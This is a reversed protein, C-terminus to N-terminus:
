KGFDLSLSNAIKRVDKLARTDSGIAQAVAQMSQFDFDLKGSRIKHINGINLHEVTTSLLETSCNPHTVVKQLVGSNTDTAMGALSEATSYQNGAVALRVNEDRSWALVALEGPSTANDALSKIDTQGMSKALDTYQQSVSEMMQRTQANMHEYLPMFQSYVLTQGSAGNHILAMAQNQELYNKMVQASLDALRAQVEKKEQDSQPNLGQVQQIEKSLKEMNATATVFREPFDPPDVSNTKNVESWAKALGEDMHLAKTTSDLGVTLKFKAWDDTDTHRVLAEKVALGEKDTRLTYDHSLKLIAGYGTANPNKLIELDVKANKGALETLSGDSTATRATHLDQVHREQDALLKTLEELIAKSEQRAQKASAGSGGTGAGEGRLKVAQELAQSTQEFVAKCTQLGELTKIDPLREKMEKLTAMSKDYRVMYDGLHMELARAKAQAIQEDLTGEFELPNPGVALSLTNQATAAVSPDSDMSLKELVYSETSQSGAVAERVRADPHDAMKTLFPTLVTDGVNGAFATDNLPLKLFAKVSLEPDSSHSLAWLAEPPTNKNDAVALQIEPDQEQALQKLTDPLTNAHNAVMYKLNLDSEGAFSQLMEATANPHRAIAMKTDLSGDQALIKALVETPTRKDNLLKDKLKPDDFRTLENFQDVLDKGKLELSKGFLKEKLAQFVNAKQEPELRKGLKDAVKDNVAGIQAELVKIDSALKAELVGKKVPDTLAGAQSLQNRAAALEKELGGRTQLLEKLNKNVFTYKKTVKEVQSQDIYEVGTLKCNSKKVVEGLKAMDESSVTGDQTAKVMRDLLDKDKGSLFGGRALAMGDTFLKVTREDEVQKLIADPDVQAQEVTPKKQVQQTSTPPLVSGGGTVNTVAVMYFRLRSDLLSFM